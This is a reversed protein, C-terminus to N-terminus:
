ILEAVKARDDLLYTPRGQHDPLTTAPDIGLVHYLTALVNQPTYPRGKPNEGRADTAGVVQGMKLGGGAVLAFGAQPWHDRGATTGRQTGVRPTRGMEGWVVVVVDKELGRDHLDTVLAHVSRDLQPVVARLCRFIHDHHDWEGNCMPGPNHNRPTLTVVPVGAEVLRRAQLFETGKDYRDRVAVPERSVDFADRAKNSTIMELAQANFADIGALSGRADDLDRRLGDFSRLLGKRDALRDLTMGGSLGLNAARPGPIYAEHAKGLFAPGGVYNADGLYVYLPMAGRVGADSRLKSVVSGISPRKGDLFGTFLEPPTHGQQLFKMNRIVALKDAIQAQLPMLECIEMGPVATKIPKFEGRYEV